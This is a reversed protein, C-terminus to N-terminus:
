PLRESTNPCRPLYLHIHMNELSDELLYLESVILTNTQKNAQENPQENTQEDTRENEPKKTLSDMFHILEIFGNISIVHILVIFIYISVLTFRHSDTFDILEIPGNISTPSFWYSDM